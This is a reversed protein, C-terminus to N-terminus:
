VDAPDYESTTDETNLVNQAKDIINDAAPAAEIPAGCNPCFKEGEGVQTGCKGCFAM